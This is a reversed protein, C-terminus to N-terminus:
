EEGSGYASKRGEDEALKKKQRKKGDERTQEVKIKNEEM